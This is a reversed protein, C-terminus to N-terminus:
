WLRIVLKLDKLWMAIHPCDDGGRQESSGHIGLLKLLDREEFLAALEGLGTLELRNTEIGIEIRDRLRFVGDDDDVAVFADHQPGVVIQAEGM